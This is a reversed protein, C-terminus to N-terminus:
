QTTAKSERDREQFSNEIENKENILKYIYHYQNYKRDANRKALSQM